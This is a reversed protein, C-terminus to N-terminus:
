AVLPHKLLSVLCECILKENVPHVALYCSSPKVAFAHLLGKVSIFKVFISHGPTLVLALIYEHQQGAENNFLYTTVELKYFKNMPNKM